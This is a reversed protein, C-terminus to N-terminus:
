WCRYVLVRTAVVLDVRLGDFECVFCVAVVWWFWGWLSIGGVWVDVIGSVCVRNGVVAVLVDDDNTITWDRITDCSDRPITLNNNAQRIGYERVIEM